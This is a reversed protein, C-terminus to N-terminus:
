QELLRNSPFFNMLLLLNHCDSCLRGSNDYSSTNFNNSLKLHITHVATSVYSIGDSPGLRALGFDSLKASWQDDLLINSSKFDRVIIQM